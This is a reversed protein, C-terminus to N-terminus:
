IVTLTLHPSTSDLMEGLVGDALGPLAAGMHSWEVKYVDEIKKGASYAVSQAASSTGIYLIDARTVQIRWNKLKNLAWRTLVQMPIKAYGIEPILECLLNISFNKSIRKVETSTSKVRINIRYKGKPTNDGKLPFEVCMLQENLVSFRLSPAHRIRSLYTGQILGISISSEFVRSTEEQNYVFLLVRSHEYPKIVPPHLSALFHTQSIRFLTKERFFEYLLLLQNEQLRKLKDEDRVKFQFKM